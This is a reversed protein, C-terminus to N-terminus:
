SLLHSFEKQFKSSSFNKSRKKAKQALKERLQKENFVKKIAYAIDNPNAPNAFLACGKALERLVPIDSLISPCGQSSAELYSLGFGEDRSILINVTAQQYLKILESDAVFGKFIFRKDGKGQASDFPKAIKIFEYFETKWKDVPGTSLYNFNKGVFICPVDALKIAKALNVLNKNWTIDGVYLLFKSDLNLSRSELNRFAHPLCPYIVKVKKEKVGLIKIIDMKSTESDTVIIDYNKLAFSNLFINFKGKIGSPFHTPYKLPILDHIVAIQRRALRRIKVPKQLFNFFPNIFIHALHSTNPTLHSVFTWDPFNERLIQMYRGVGRVKSLEDSATPDYVLVKRQM